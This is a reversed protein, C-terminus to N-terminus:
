LHILLYITTCPTVCASLYYQQGSRLLAHTLGRRRVGGLWTEEGGFFTRLRTRWTDGYQYAQLLRYSIAVFFVTDHVASLIIGIGAINHVIDIMCRHTDGIHMAHFAPITTAFTAAGCVAWIAFFLQVLRPRDLYVARLRLFMLLSNFLPAVCFFAADATFLTDCDDVKAVVLEQSSQQLYLGLTSM